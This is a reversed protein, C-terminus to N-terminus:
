STEAGDATRRLVLPPRDEAGFAIWARFLRTLAIWMLIPMLSFLGFKFISIGGDRFWQLSLPLFSCYFLVGYKNVAGSRWFWRHITGLALGVLVMTLIMGIWGGSMWGDGALSTTLNAFHGFDHLSFYQVPPGIPKAPWLVRPIPETFLQLYQTFWTYTGSEKPVVWLIFSLYDFNGLDQGALSDVFRADSSGQVRFLSSVPATGEFVSRLAGRNQGLTHFLMLVPLGVAVHWLRFWKTRTHYLLLLVLSIVGMIFAWRGWGLYARYMLFSLFPIFSLPHFRSVWIIGLALPLGMSHAEAVYGTTNVYVPQGTLPDREMQVDGVGTFSAGGQRMIASYVALPGLLLATLTYAAIDPGDFRFPERDQFEPRAAGSWACAIAFAILAVSSVMLTFVFQQASPWFGIFLWVNDFQYVHLLIPRLVFVLTHFILYFSLPHFMSATGSFLFVAVVLAVVLVQAILALEIM